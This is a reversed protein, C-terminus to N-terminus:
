VPQAIFKAGQRVAQINLPVLKQHRASTHAKIAAEMEELKLVDLNALLAGLLVMNTMRKDGLGEAIESAPLNVVLLDIPLPNEENYTFGEGPKFALLRHITSADYLKLARGAVLTGTQDGTVTYSNANVYTPTWDRDFWEADNAYTKIQAMVERIGDNVGSPAMGEPFGDPPTATNAGASTSWSGIKAM